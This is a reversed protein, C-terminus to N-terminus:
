EGSTTGSWVRCCEMRASIECESLRTLDNLRSELFVGGKSPRTKGTIVDMLTTKGAGNPGILCRLEGRELALTVDDLAKFGDFDVTVEEAWLVTDHRPDAGLAPLPDDSM